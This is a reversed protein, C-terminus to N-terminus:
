KENKQNTKIKYFEFIAPSMKADGKEWHQWTRLAAYVVAGAETQTHGALKRAAKIEQSTPSNKIQKEHEPNILNGM